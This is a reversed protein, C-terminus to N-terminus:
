LQFRGEENLGDAFSLGYIYFWKGYSGDAKKVSEREVDYGEDRLGKMFEDKTIRRLKKDDLYNIYKDFASFVPVKGNANAIFTQDIYHKLPNSKKEYRDRREIITGEKSFSHSKMLGDLLKISKKCLASYEEEPIRQLIDGNAEEFQNPFDIVVWRRYFGDTRDDTQPLTNTAVLIKAYNVDDFPKKNKFEFGIFDEGSLRKLRSTQKIKDFNTEGMECVLKKYLKVSEFRSVILQELETSCHNHTGVLKRILALFKSKGNSGSGTLVFIRHIFYRPFLTFACIEYLLPKWEEGVWETFLKDINPTEESECISWPIPNVAFYERTAPYSEGTVINIIKDKFQIDHEGLPKPKLRRGARRLAELIESKVNGKLTNEAYDLAADVTNLIDTEDVICWMKKTDDWVWWLQHEDYYIGENDVLEYCFNRWDAQKIIGDKLKNLPRDELIKKNLKNEIAKAVEVFKKGRLESLTECDCYGNLISFLQIASGGVRHRFCYWTNKETNIWFNKGSSSGHIPHEGYWETGYQQMGKFDFIEKISLEVQQENEIITNNKIPIFPALIKGIEEFNVEAIPFDLHEKYYNGNIQSGPCLVQTYTGKESVWRIEGADEKGCKLNIFKANQPDKIKYYLHEGGSRTTVTFTKPLYKAQEFVLQFTQEIKRDIDVVLYNNYGCLFGYNHGPNKQLQEQIEELSYNAGGIINWELGRPKKDNPCILVFRMDQAKLQKPLEM